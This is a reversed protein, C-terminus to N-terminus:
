KWVGGLEYIVMSNIMAKGGTVAISFRGDTSDLNVNVPMFLLGDATFIEFGIRDVYVVLELKGKVLPAPATVGDCGLQQQQVDFTIQKGHINWQIQKAAGPELQLRM